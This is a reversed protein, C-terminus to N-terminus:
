FQPLFSLLIFFYLAIWLVRAFVGFIARKHKIKNEDVEASGLHNHDVVEQGKM